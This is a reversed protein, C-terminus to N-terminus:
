RQAGGGMPPEADCADHATATQALTRETSITKATTHAVNQSYQSEAANEMFLPRTGEM